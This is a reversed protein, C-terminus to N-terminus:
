VTFGVMATQVRQTVALGPGVWGMYVGLENLKVENELEWVNLGEEGSIFQSTEGEEFGSAENLGEKAFKDRQKVLVHKPQGKEYNYPSEKM